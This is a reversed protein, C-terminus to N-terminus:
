HTKACVGTTQNWLPTADYALNSAPNVIITTNGNPTLAEECNVVASNTSPNGMYLDVHSVAGCGNPATWSTACTDEKIFYKQLFPVYIKTGVAYAGSGSPSAFTLPDAYSGVGGAQSHIVPNSIDRSGSPDNDYAGYFTVEVSKTTGTAPPTPTPVPKPAPKKRVVRRPVPKAKQKVAHKRLSALVGTPSQGSRDIPQDIGAVVPRGVVNASTVLATHFPLGHMGIMIAVAGLGLAVASYIKVARGLHPKQM